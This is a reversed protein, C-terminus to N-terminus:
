FTETESKTGGEIIEDREGMVFEGLKKKGLTGPKNGEWEWIQSHHRHVEQLHRDDNRGQRKEMCGESAIEDFRRGEKNPKNCGLGNRLWSEDKKLKKKRVDKVENLAKEPEFLKIKEEMDKKKRKKENESNTKKELIDQIGLKKKLTEIRSDKVEEKEVKGPTSGATWRTLFTSGQVDQISDVKKTKPQNNIRRRPTKKMRVPTQPNIGGGEWLKKWDEINKKKTEM